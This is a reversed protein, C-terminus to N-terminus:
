NDGAVSYDAAVSLHAAEGCGASYCEFLFHKLKFAFGDVDLDGIKKYLKLENFVNFFLQFFRKKDNVIYHYEYIIVRFVVSIM